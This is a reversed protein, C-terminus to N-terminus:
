ATKTTHTETIDTAQVLVMRNAVEKYVKNQKGGRRVQKSSGRGKCLAIRRDLLGEFHVTTVAKTIVAPPTPGLRLDVFALSMCM